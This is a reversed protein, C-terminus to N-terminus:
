LYTFPESRGNIKKGGLTVFLHEVRALQEANIGKYQLIIDDRENSITLIRSEPIYVAKFVENDQMWVWIRVHTNRM